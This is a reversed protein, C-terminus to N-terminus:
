HARSLPLLGLVFLRSPSSSNGFERDSRSSPEDCEKVIQRLDDWFSDELRARKREAIVFSKM